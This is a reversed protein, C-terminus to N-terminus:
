QVGKGSTAQCVRSRRRDAKNPSVDADSEGVMIIDEEDEEAVTSHITLKMQPTRLLTM